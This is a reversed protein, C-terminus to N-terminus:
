QLGRLLFRALNVSLLLTLCLRHKARAALLWAAAAGCLLAIFARRRLQDFHM